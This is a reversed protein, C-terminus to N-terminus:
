ASGTTPHDQSKTYTTAHTAGTIGLRNRCRMVMKNLEEQAERLEVFADHTIPGDLGLLRNRILRATESVHASRRTYNPDTM